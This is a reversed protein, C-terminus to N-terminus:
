IEKNKIDPENWTGIEMKNKPLKFPGKLLFYNQKPKLFIRWDMGKLTCTETSWVIM